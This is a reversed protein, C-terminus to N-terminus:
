GGVGAPPAAAPYAKIIAGRIPATTLGDAVGGYWQWLRIAAIVVFPLVLARRGQGGRVM